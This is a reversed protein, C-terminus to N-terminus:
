LIEKDSLWLVYAIFTPTIVIAFIIAVIFQLIKSVVYTEALLSIGGVILILPLLCFLILKLYWKLIKNM